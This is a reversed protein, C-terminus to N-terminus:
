AKGAALSQILAEIDDHESVRGEGIDRSAEREGKQWAQTFFYAQSKDVLRKPTLVIAQRELTVAVRDGAHIGAARRVAAPLTIQGNRTVKTMVTREAM